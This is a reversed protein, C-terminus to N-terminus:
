RELDLPVFGKGVHIVSKPDGLGDEKKPSEVLDIAEEQLEGLEKPLSSYPHEMNQGYLKALALYFHVSFITVLTVLSSFLINILSKARSLAEPSECTVVKHGDDNFLTCGKPAFDPTWIMFGTLIMWLGQFLISVSRVFSVLFSRPLGIGMLTTVLSITILIQFLLHYQGEIGRHDTSHVHFLFLEQGFAVAAILLTLNQGFQAQSKPIVRDLHIAFAAYVIFFMSIGSHEFNRLHYSPITGDADFPHHRSPGIFLEFSVSISSGLIIFLLELHRLKPTPFWPASAYNNPQLCYLKINNILHWLGLLFFGLGPLVHGLLSGM